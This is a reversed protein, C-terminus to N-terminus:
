FEGWREKRTEIETLAEELCRWADDFQGLEAHSSALSSLWIPGFLTSGTSRWAKLGPNIMETAIACKGTLAAVRGQCVDGLIKGFVIEKEGGLAVAEDAFAKAALYDGSYLRAEMAFSLAFGLSLPSSLGVNEVFSRLEHASRVAIRDRDSFEGIVRVRKRVSERLKKRCARNHM